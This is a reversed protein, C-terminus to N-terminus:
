SISLRSSLSDDIPVSLSRKASHSMSLLSSDELEMRKFDTRSDSGHLARVQSRANTSGGLEEHDYWVSMAPLGIGM